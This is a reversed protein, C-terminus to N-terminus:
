LRLHAVGLAGGRRIRAAKMDVYEELIFRVLELVNPPEKVAAAPLGADIADGTTEEATRDDDWAADSWETASGSQMLEVFDNWTKRHKALLDDIMRRATERENANSSGLMAFLQRLRNLVKKNITSSV